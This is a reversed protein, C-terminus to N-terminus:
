HRLLGAIGIAVPPRGEISATAAAQAAEFTRCKKWMSFTSSITRYNGKKGEEEEGRTANIFTFPNIILSDRGKPIWVDVGGGCKPVPREWTIAVSNNGDVCLPCCCGSCIGFFSILSSSCLVCMLSLLSLSILLCRRQNFTEGKQKSRKNGNLWVISFKWVYVGATIISRVFNAHSYIHVHTNGGEPGSFIKVRPLFRPRRSAYIYKRSIAQTYVTYNSLRAHTRKLLIVYAGNLATTRSSPHLHVM